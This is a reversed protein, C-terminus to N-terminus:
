LLKVVNCVTAHSITKKRTNENIPNRIYIHAYLCSAQAWLASVIRYSVNHYVSVASVQQTSAPPRAVSLGIDDMNVGPYRWGDSFQPYFTPVVGSWRSSSVCMMMMMMMVLLLLHCCAVLPLPLAV